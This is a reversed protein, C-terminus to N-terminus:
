PSWSQDLEDSRLHAFSWRAQTQAGASHVMPPMCINADNKQFISANVAKFASANVGQWWPAIDAWLWKQFWTPVIALDAILEISVQQGLSVGPADKESAIELESGGKTHPHQAGHNSTSKALSYRKRLGILTLTKWVHREHLAKRTECRYRVLHWGPGEWMGWSHGFILGSFRVQYWGQLRTQLALNKNRLAEWPTCLSRVLSLVKGGRFHKVVKRTVPQFARKLALCTQFICVFPRSTTIAQLDGILGRFLCFISSVYMCCRPPTEHLLVSNFLVFLIHLFPGRPFPAWSFRGVFRERCSEVVKRCFEVSIRGKGCDSEKTKPCLVLELFNPCNRFRAVCTRCNQAPKKRTARLICKNFCMECACSCSEPFSFCMCLCLLNGPNDQSQTPPLLKNIHKTPTMGKPPGFVYVFIGLLDWSLGAFNQKKTKTPKKREGGGWFFIM